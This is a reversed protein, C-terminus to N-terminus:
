PFPRSCSGGGGPWPQLARQDQWSIANGLPNGALDTLVLGHLQSSMLVCEADPALAFLQQLLQRTVTVIQRPDFERFAGNGLELPKPFPLRVVHCLTRQELDLIAGKIFSSGLDFGIARM